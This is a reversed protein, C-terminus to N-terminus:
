WDKKKQPFCTHVIVGMQKTLDEFLWGCGLFDCGVGLIVSVLEM